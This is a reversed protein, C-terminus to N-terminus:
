APQRHAAAAELRRRFFERDLEEKQTSFRRVTIQSKRNLLGVGLSRKRHDLIEVAEGDRADDSVGAIEGAYVWCHGAILRRDKGPKLIIAPM